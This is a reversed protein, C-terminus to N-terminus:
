SKLPSNPPKKLINESRYWPASILAAALTQDLGSERRILEDHVAMGSFPVPYVEASNTLIRYGRLAMHAAVDPNVLSGAVTGTELALIRAVAFRRHIVFDRRRNPELGLKRM